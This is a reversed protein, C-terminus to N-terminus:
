DSLDPPAEEWNLPALAGAPIPDRGTVREIHVLARPFWNEYSMREGEPSGDDINAALGPPPPLAFRGDPYSEPVGLYHLLEELLVEDSADAPWRAQDAPSGPAGITIVPATDGHLDPRAAPPHGAAELVVSFHFQDGSGALEYRENLHARVLGSVRKQWAELGAAQLGWVPLRAVYHRVARGDGAILRRVGFRVLTWRGALFGSGKGVAVKGAGANGAPWQNKHANFLEVAVPREDGPPASEIWGSPVWDTGDPRGASREQDAPLRPLWRVDASAPSVVNEAEDELEIAELATVADSLEDMARRVLQYDAYVRTGDFRALADALAGLWYEQRAIPALVPLGGRDGVRERARVARAQLEQAARRAETVAEALIARAALTLRDLVPLATNVTRAAEHLEALTRPPAPVRVGAGLTDNVERVAGALDTGLRVHEPGAHDALLAAQVALQDATEQWQGLVRDAAAFLGAAASEFAELTARFWILRWRLDDAQERTPAAPPAPWDAPIAGAAALFGAYRDALARDQNVLELAAGQVDAVEALRAAVERTAVALIDAVVPEPAAPVATMAAELATRLAAEQAGAHPLVRQGASALATIAAPPGLPAPHPGVPPLTLWLDKHRTPVHIEILLREDDAFYERKAGFWHTTVAMRYRIEVFLQTYERWTRKLGTDTGYRTRTSQSDANWEIWDHGILAGAGNSFDYPQGPIQAIPEAWNGLYAGSLVERDDAGTDADARFRRTMVGHTTKGEHVSIVDALMELEGLPWDLWGPLVLETKIQGALIEPLRASLFSESIVSAAQRFVLSRPSFWNSGSPPHTVHNRIMTKVTEIADAVSDGSADPYRAAQPLLLRTLKARLGALAGPSAVDLDTLLAPERRAAAALDLGERLSELTTGLALPATTIVPLVPDWAPATGPQVAPPPPAALVPLTTPPHSEEDLLWIDHRTVLEGVDAADEPVDANESGQFVGLSAADIMAAPASERTITASFHVRRRFLAAGLDDTNVTRGKSKESWHSLGTKHQVQRYLTLNLNHWFANLDGASGEGFQGIQWFRVPDAGQRVAHSSTEEETTDQGARSTLYHKSPVVGDFRADSLRAKMVIRITRNVTIITPVKLVTGPVTVRYHETVPVDVPLGGNVMLRLFAATNFPGRIKGIEEAALDRARIGFRAGIETLMRTVFGSADPPVTIIEGRLSDETGSPMRYRVSRDLVVRGWDPMLGLETAELASMVTHGSAAVEPDRHARGYEVDVGFWRHWTTVRLYYRAKLAGIAMTDIAVHARGDSGAQERAKGTTKESRYYFQPQYTFTYPTNSSPDYNQPPAANPFEAGFKLPFRLRLATFFSNGSDLPWGTTDDAIGVLSVSGVDNFTGYSDPAAITEVEEVVLRVIEVKGMLEHRLVGAALHEGLTEPHSISGKWVEVPDEGPQQARLTPNSAVATQVATEIQHRVPVPLHHVGMDAFAGIIERIIGDGGIEAPLHAPFPRDGYAPDNAKFILPAAPLGRPVGHRLKGQAYPVWRQNGPPGTLKSTLDTPIFVKYEAKVPEAREEGPLWAPPAFSDVQDHVVPAAVPVVAHAPRPVWVAPDAAASQDPPRLQARPAGAPLADATGAFYGLGAAPPPATASEVSLFLTLRGAFESLDDISYGSLGWFASGTTASRVKVLRQHYMPRVEVGDLMGGSFASSAQGIGAIVQAGVWLGAIRTQSLLTDQEEITYADLESDPLWDSWVPASPVWNGGADLEGFRARVRIVIWDAAKLAAGKPLVISYGEGTAAQRINARIADGALAAKLRQRNAAAFENKIVWAGPVHVEGGDTGGAAPLYGPHSRLLIEEALSYLSPPPQGPQAPLPTLETVRTLSGLNAPLNAPARLIGEAPEQPGGSTLPDGIGLLRAFPAVDKRLSRVFVPAALDQWNRGAADEDSRVIKLRARFRTVSTPEGTYRIGSTKTTTMGSGSRGLETDLTPWLYFFPELWDVGLLNVPLGFLMLGPPIDIADANSIYRDHARMQRDDLDMWTGGDSRVPIEVPILELWWTVSVRSDRGTGGTVIQSGDPSAARALQEKLAPLTLAADLRRRARSGPPAVDAMRRQIASRIERVPNLAEVASNGHLRVAQVPNLTVPYAPTAHVAKSVAVAAADPDGTLPSIAPPLSERSSLIRVGDPWPAPVPRQIEGGAAEASVEISAQYSFLYSVFTSNKITNERVTQSRNGATENHEGLVLTLLGFYGETGTLQLPSRGTVQDASYAFNANLDAFHGHNHSRGLYDRRNETAKSRIAISDSIQRGAGPRVRVHIQWGAVEFSYRDSVLAAGHRLLEEKTTKAEIVTTNAPTRLDEPLAQGALARISGIVAYSLDYVTDTSGTVPNVPDALHYPPDFRELLTAPDPLHDPASGAPPLSRSVEDARRGGSATIRAGIEALLQALRSRAQRLEAVAAGATRPTGTIRYPRPGPALPDDGTIVPSPADADAQLAAALLYGRLLDATRAALARRTEPLTLVPAGPAMGPMPREKAPLVELMPAIEIVARTLETYWPPRELVPSAAGPQRLALERFQEIGAFHRALGLMIATLEPETGATLTRQALGDLATTLAARAAGPDPLLALVQDGTAALVGVVSSLAERAVEVPLGLPPSLLPAPRGAEAPTVPTLEGASGPNGTLAELVALHGGTVLVEGDRAAQGMVSGQDGREVASRGARDRFVPAVEDKGEDLYEDRLGLFHLLEHVWVAPPDDDYWTFQDGRRKDAPIGAGPLVRVVAHADGAEDALVATIKLADASAPLVRGRLAQDLEANLQGVMATLSDRSAEDGPAVRWRIERVAGDATTQRKLDFRVRHRGQALETLVRGSLAGRDGAQSPELPLPAKWRMPDFFEDSVARWLSEVPIIERDSIEEVRALVEPFWQDYPLRSGDSAVATLSPPPRLAWRADTYYDPLGLYHLIEELLVEDTDTLHWLLQHSGQGNREARVTVVPPADGDLDLVAPPAQDSQHLHVALHFQDRSEPLEYRGNLYAGILRDLRAQLGALQEAPLGHVPVRVTFKRVTSGDHELRRVGYRVLTWRGPLFARGRDLPTKRANFLQHTVQREEGPAAQDVLNAPVWPRGDRLPAPVPQDPLKPMVGPDDPSQAAEQVADAAARLADLFDFVVGAQDAALRRLNQPLSNALANLHSVLEEVGGILAPPSVAAGQQYAAQVRGFVAQYVTWSEAWPNSALGVWTAWTNPPGLRSVEAALEENGAVLLDWAAAPSRAGAAVPGVATDAAVATTPTGSEVTTATTAPIVPPAPIVPTKPDPKSDSRPLTVAPKPVGSSSAVAPLVDAPTSVPVPVPSTTGTVLLRLSEPLDGPNRIPILHRRNVAINILNELTVDSVALRIANEAEVLVGGFDEGTDVVIQADVSIVHFNEKTEVDYEAIQGGEGGIDHTGESSLGPVGTFEGIINSEYGGGEPSIQFGISTSNGSKAINVSENQSYLRSKLGKAGALYRIGLFNVLVAASREGTVPFNYGALRRGAEANQGLLMQPMQATLMSGSLLLDHRASRMHGLHDFGTRRQGVYNVPRGRRQERPVFLWPVLGRILHAAPFAVPVLALKSLPHNADSRLNALQHRNLWRSYTVRPTTPPQVARDMGEEDTTLERTLPKLVLLTVQGNVEAYDEWAWPANDFWFAVREQQFAGPATMLWRFPKTLLRFFEPPNWTMGVDIRFELGHEFGYAGNKATLRYIDLLTQSRQEESTRKTKGGLHVTGGTLGPGVLGVAAASAGWSWTSDRGKADTVHQAPETRVMLTTEDSQTVERADGALLRARVRIGIFSLGFGSPRPIWYVVGGNLLRHYQAELAPGTFLTDLQRHFPDTIPGLTIGHRTLLNKIAGLVHSAELSGPGVASFSLATEADIYTRPVKVLGDRRRFAPFQVRSVQVPVLMAIANDAKFHVSSTEVPALSGHRVLEYDLWLSGKVLESSKYTARVVQVAGQQTLHQEQSQREYEGGGQITFHQGPKSSGISNLTDEAVQKGGLKVRFGVQGRVGVLSTKSTGGGVNLSNSVYREVEAERSVALEDSGTEVKVDFLRLRIRVAQRPGLTGLATRRRPLVVILGEPDSLFLFNSQLFLPSTIQNVPEPVDILETIEEDFAIEHNARALVTAVGLAVEPLAAIVARLGAPPRGFRHFALVRPGGAPAGASRLHPAYQRAEWRGLTGAFTTVQVADAAAVYPLSPLVGHAASVVAEYPRGAAGAPRNPQADAGVESLYGRVSRVATIGLPFLRTVRVAVLWYIQKVFDQAPDGEGGSETRIYTTDTGSLSQTNGRGWTGSIEVGGVDLSYDSNLSIRATGGLGASVSTQRGRGVQLSNGSLARQNITMTGFLRSTTPAGPIGDLSVAIDIKAGAVHLTRVIGHRLGALDTALLVAPGFLNDLKDQVAQSAVGQDTLVGQIYSVVAQANPLKRLVGYGTGRMTALMHPEYVVVSSSGKGAPSSTGGSDISTPEAVMPGGAIGSSPVAAGPGLVQESFRDAEHSNVALQIPVNLVAVPAIPINTHFTIEVTALGAYAEMPGGMILTTKSGYEQGLTVSSARSRTVSLSAGLYGVPNAEPNLKTVELGGSLSGSSSVEQSTKLQEILGIDLRLASKVQKHHVLRVPRVKVEITGEFYGQGNQVRLGPPSATATLLDRSRNLMMQEYLLHNRLHAAFVTVAEATVTERLRAIVGAIVDTIVIADLSFDFESLVAANVNPVGVVDPAIEGSLPVLGKQFAVTIRHDRTLHDDVQLRGDVYIKAAIRVRFPLYDQVLQKRGTVVRVVSGTANQGHSSSGPSPLGVSVGKLGVSAVGVALDGMMNLNGEVGTKAGREIDQSAFNVRFANQGPQLLPKGEERFEEIEYRIWVTKRNITLLTGLHLYETWHDKDSDGLVEVLAQELEEAGEPGLLVRIPLGNRNLLARADREADEASYAPLHGDLDKAKTVEMEGRAGLRSFWPPGEVGLLAQSGQPTPRPLSSAPTSPSRSSTSPRGVLTQSRKSVTRTREARPGKGKRDEEKKGPGGGGPLRQGLRGAAQNILEAYLLADDEDLSTLALAPEPAVSLDAFSVGDGADDLEAVSVQGLAWGLLAAEDEGAAPAGDYAQGSPLVSIHVQDGRRSFQGNVYRDLLEQVRSVLEPEANLRLVVYRVWHRPLVEMRRVDAQVEAQAPELRLRLAGALAAPVVLPAQGGAAQRAARGISALGLEDAREGAARRLAAEPAKQLFSHTAPLPAAPSFSVAVATRPGTARGAADLHHVHPGAPPIATLQDATATVPAGLQAALSGASAPDLSTVTPLVHITLQDPTFPLGQLSALPNALASVHAPDVFVRFKGPEPAIASAAAVASTGATGGAPHAIVGSPVHTFQLPAAVGSPPANPLHAPLSMGMRRAAQYQLGPVLDRLGQEAVNLAARTGPTDDAGSARVADTYQIVAHEVAPNSSLRFVDDDPSLYYSVSGPDGSRAARNEAQIDIDPSTGSRATVRVHLGGLAKADNSVPIDVGRAGQMNIVLVQGTEGAKSIVEKFALEREKAGGQALFWKADIATHPVSDGLEASIRAVLDNRHALILQPQGTGDRMERVDSAIARVKAALDASVHDADTVLRSSYYRPIDAIQDTLGQRAFIEGKGLATGSAGVVRDYVDKAYLQQATINKSSSPDDRITLGHKAEIAQALGGNWRSETATEPNYLVDHTTQDIIYIKGNDQVYHIDEVYEWHAAAALNLKGIEAESLPGGHLQEAKAQGEGTLSAPGGFQGESRGFDAETLSGSKLNDALFGTAWKVPAAVRDPAAGNVGRALIFHTNSYVFAEDIEDVSAYIVTRGSSKQGPVADTKLDTFAVDQHTGVYITPRGDAPPPPPKDSNMRHVDFGLPTLVKSYHEFERDALNERTTIVHLADVDPQVAHRAADAFFLWSKGEGAAMNVIRRDALAHSAALQTWRLSVGDSRRVAEYVAAIADDGSGHLLKQLATDSLNTLRMAEPVQPGSRAAIDHLTRAADHAGNASALWGEYTAADVSSHETWGGLGDRLFTRPEALRTGDPAKVQRYAVTEGTNKVRVEENEPGLKITTRGDASTLEVPHSTKLVVVDAPGDKPPTWTGGFLPPDGADPQAPVFKSYPPPAAGRPAHATAKQTEALRDALRSPLSKSASKLWDGLQRPDGPPRGGVLDGLLYDRLKGGFDGLSSQLRADYGASLETGDPLKEAFDSLAKEVGDSFKAYDGEYATLLKIRQNVRSLAQAAWRRAASEVQAPTPNPANDWRKEFQTTFGDRLEQEWRADDPLAVDADDLAATLKATADAIRENLAEYASARGALQSSLQEFKASILDEGSGGGRGGWWSGGRSREAEANLVRRLWAAALNQPHTSDGAHEAFDGFTDRSAADAKANWDSPKAPPSPETTGAAAASAKQEDPPNESVPRESPGVGSGGVPEGSSVDAPPEDATGANETAPKTAPPLAAPDTPSTAPPEAGATVEASPAQVETVPESVPAESVPPSAPVPSESVPSTGSATVPASTDPPVSQGPSEAGPAPEGATAAGAPQAGAGEAPPAGAGVNTSADVGEPPAVGAGSAGGVGESPAVGAGTSGGVGEAPAVGAGTSGGVGEAPAVGAGTSGGVGEAPPVGGAGEPPPADTSSPADGAATKEPDGSEEPDGPAPVEAGTGNENKSDDPGLLGDILDGPDIVPIHDSLKVDPGERGRESAFLSGAAGAAAALGVNQGGGFALNAAEGTLVGTAAGQVLRTPLLDKIEPALLGEAGADIGGAVVGSLLGVEFASLTWSANWNHLDGKAAMIVQAGLDIGVTSFVTFILTQVFKKFIQEITLRAIFEYAPILPATFFDSAAWAIMAATLAVQLIITLKTYELQLAAAEATEGIDIANSALEPITSLLSQAYQGFQEGTAGTVNELVDQAVTTFEPLLTQLSNGAEIWADGLARLKDEDGDPFNQGAVIDFLWNLQSPVMLSM